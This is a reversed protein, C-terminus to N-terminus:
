IVLGRVARASSSLTYGAANFEIISPRDPTLRCKPYILGLVSQKRRMLDDIKQLYFLPIITFLLGEEATGDNIV